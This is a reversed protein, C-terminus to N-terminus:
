DVGSRAAPVPFNACPDDRAIPSTLWIYDFGPHDAIVQRSFDRTREEEPTAEIFGVSVSSSDADALGAAHLYVPVALDARVHGNGAILIAGGGTADSVLAQAMAADRVRQALVLRPVVAEPLKRCHGEIIDARLAAAQAESWRAAHFRAYWTADSRKDIAAQLDGGLEPRSLNGARVPLRAALAAVLHWEGVFRAARVDWIRSESVSRGIPAPSSCAALMACLVVGIGRVPSIM